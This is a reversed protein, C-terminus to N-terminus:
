CVTALAISTTIINSITPISIGYLIINVSSLSLITIPHQQWQHPHQGSSSAWITADGCEEKSDALSPLRSNMEKIKLDVKM